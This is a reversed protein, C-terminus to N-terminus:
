AMPCFPRTDEKAHLLGTRKGTTSTEKLMRIEGIVTESRTFGLGGVVLVVLGVMGWTMMRVATKRM